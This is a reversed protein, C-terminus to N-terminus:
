RAVRSEVLTVFLDDYRRGVRSWTFRELVRRRAADGLREREDTSGTLATLHERLRDTDGPDFLRASDGLVERCADIGTAVIACGSLMAELLSVPFNEAVSPFVFISARRYLERLSTCGNDMWGHFEVHDSARRALRRLEPMSPGDGVVHVDFGLPGTELARM